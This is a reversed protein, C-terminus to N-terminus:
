KMYKLIEYAFAWAALTYSDLLNSTDSSSHPPNRSKAMVTEHVWTRAAEIDRSENEGFDSFYEVLLNSVTLTAVYEFVGDAWALAYAPDKDFALKFEDIKSQAYEAREKFKLLAKM